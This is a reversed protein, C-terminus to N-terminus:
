TVELHFLYGGCNILFISRLVSDLEIYGRISLYASVESGSRGRINGYARMNDVVSTVPRVARSTDWRHRGSAKASVM